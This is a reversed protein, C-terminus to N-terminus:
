LPPNSGRALLRCQDCTIKLQCRTRECRVEHGMLALGIRDLRQVSRGKILVVDGPGLDARLADVVTRVSNGADATAESSMGARRAGKAYRRYQSGIFVARTAIEGVRMGLRRYIADQSGPPEAVDGLVVIRRGAPIEAFVDLAADITELSSKFEDRLLYAGNPLPAVVMRGTVPVVAELRPLIEELSLGEELGVVVAALIAYVQYRGILRIRVPRQEGAAHLTFTTGHPWDLAVDSGRVDSGEAFGFTKVRARTEDRMWLVNPDDANLVALGDPPLVRVMEAKEHRTVDLTPLSRNHESGISTVVTVNPRVLDARSAMQGTARIGVEIVAHRDWPRVRLVAAALTEDANGNVRQHRKADLAAIVARTATTKGYSGVVAVVRVRAIVRRRHRRALWTLGPGTMATLRRYLEVLRYSVPIASLVPELGLLKM